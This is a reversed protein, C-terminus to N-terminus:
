NKSPLRGLADKILATRDEKTLQRRVITEALGVATDVNSRAMDELAQNKAIEIENLARDRERQAMEQASDIIKQKQLDADKRAQDILAQADGEAGDLKGQYEDLKAQAEEAGRQAEDIHDAIGKERKDLGTMIPKWAVFYLLTALLIFMVLTFLSLDSKFSIPAGTEPSIEVYSKDFPNHHTNGHGGTQGSSHSDAEARPGGAPAPDSASATQAVILAFSVLISLIFGHGIRVLM